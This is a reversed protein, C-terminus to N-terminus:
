SSLRKRLIDFLGTKKVILVTTLVVLILILGLQNRNNSNSKHSLLSGLRALKESSVSKMHAAALVGEAIGYRGTQYASWGLASLAPESFWQKEDTLSNITQYAAEFKNLELYITALPVLIEQSCPQIRQAAQLLMGAMKYQGLKALELGLAVHEQYGVPGTQLLHDWYAITQESMGKLRRALVTYRKAQKNNQQRAYSVALLNYIEAIFPNIEAAKLLHNEAPKWENKKMMAKGMETNAVFHNSNIELAQHLHTIAKDLKDQQLLARGKLALADPNMNNQEVMQNLYNVCEDYNRQKLHIAALRYCYTASNLNESLLSEYTALAEDDRECILQNEALAEKYATREPSLTIAKKLHQIAKPDGTSVITLIEAYHYHLEPRGPYQQILKKFVKLAQPYDHATKLALAKQIQNVLSANASNSPTTSSVEAATEATTKKPFLLVLGCVIVLATIFASRCIKLHIFLCDGHTDIM